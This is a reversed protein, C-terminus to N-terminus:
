YRTVIPKPTRYKYWTHYYYAFSGQSFFVPRFSNFRTSRLIQSRVQGKRLLSKNGTSNKLAVADEYLDNYMSTRRVYIQSSDTEVPIMLVLLIMRGGELDFDYELKRQILSSTSTAITPYFRPKRDKNSSNSMFTNNFSIAGESTRVDEEVSWWEVM